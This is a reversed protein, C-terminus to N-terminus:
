FLTERITMFRYAVDDDNTASFTTRGNRPRHHHHQQDLKIRPKGRVVHLWCKKGLCPGCGVLVITGPVLDRPNFNKLLSVEQVIERM